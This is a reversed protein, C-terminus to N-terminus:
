DINVIVQGEDVVADLNLDYLVPALNEFVKERSIEKGECFRGRWIENHRYFKEGRRIFAHDEEWIRFKDAAPRPALLQGKLKTDTVWIKLQLPQSSVNRFKLDIFNYLCTAGSGFPLVRGSDPFVDMSHHYREVVETEAHLLIWCLFNSLQCLGGGVGEIVKGNSLLMGDAYGRERTPEGITEWLSFVEGPMVVLGDLDQCARMLNTIKGEQLSPDSDGLKRRLTSQHRAVVHPYMSNSRMRAVRFILRNRLKALLRKVGIILPALIPLSGSLTQRKPREAEKLLKELREHNM